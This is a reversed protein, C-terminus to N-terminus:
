VCAADRNRERMERVFGRTDYGKDAGLTVRKEGEIREAMEVAADREATGSAMVVATDVVLGDRNEILVNGCNRQCRSRGKWFNAASSRFCRPPM